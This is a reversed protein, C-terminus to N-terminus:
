RKGKQRAPVKIEVKCGAGAKFFRAGSGGNVAIELRGSSGILAIPEGEKVGCYSAKVGKILLGKIKITADRRGDEPLDKAPVNTILNGFRDIHIIEATITDGKKLPCPIQLPTLSKIGPGFSSPKVGLSLHAAVPAFIDRGHFVASVDKLFFRKETLHIIRKIKSEQAALTLVGNDPGVFFYKDTQILVPRRKGGVGPDVVCVHISGQPFYGSADQLAMAGALIDHPPVLHTIDVISVDSNISLVAGKMAGAYQDALGFDTTLTIIAKKM